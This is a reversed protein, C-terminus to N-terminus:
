DSKIKLIFIKVLRREKGKPLSIDARPTADVKIASAMPSDTGGNAIPKGNETTASKGVVKNQVKNLFGKM